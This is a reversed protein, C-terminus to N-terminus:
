RVVLVDCKSSHLVRTPVTGLFIEKVKSHHGRCGLVVLDFGESDIADSIYQEPTEDTILRTEIPVGEAEFAEKTENLIVTGASEVEALLSTYVDPPIYQLAPSAQTVLKHLISHFAVVQTVSGNKVLDIVKVEARKANESGDTAFIAKNYMKLVLM